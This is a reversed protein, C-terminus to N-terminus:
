ALPSAPRKEKQAQYHRISSRGDLRIIGIAPCEPYCRVPWFFGSYVLLFWFLNNRWREGRLNKNRNGNQKQGPVTKKTKKGVEVNKRDDNLSLSSGSIVLL